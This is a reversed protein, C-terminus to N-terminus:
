PGDIPIGWDQSISNCIQKCVPCRASGYQNWMTHSPRQGCRCELIVEPGWTNIFRKKTESSIPIELSM